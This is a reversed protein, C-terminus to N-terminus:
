DRLSGSLEIIQGQRLVKLVVENQNQMSRMILSLSNEDRIKIGNTELIIDGGLHLTTGEIQLPFQGGRLGIFSAPSLPVVKQVLLGRNQPLNLVKSAVESLLITELGTWPTPKELLLAKCVNISAAFGLGQSGGSESLIYSAIGVVEGDMNFM